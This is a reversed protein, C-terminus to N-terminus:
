EMGIELPNFSTVINTISNVEIRDLKVKRLDDIAWDSLYSKKAKDFNNTAEGVADVLRIRIKYDSILIQFYSLADLLYIFEDPKSGDRQYYIIYGESIRPTKEHKIIIWPSTLVEISAPQDWENGHMKSLVLDPYFFTYKDSRPLLEDACLIKIDNVINVLYKIRDPGFIIIKNKESINIKSSNIKELFEKFNRDFENDHNYVFLLGIVEGFPLNDLLFKSQWSSSINACEVSMALSELAKILATKTISGKAYSKLDINVYITKGTYPDGYHFVVDSPHTSKAHPEPKVCDWNVDELPRKEWKLWTFIDSSIINALRQINGTESM